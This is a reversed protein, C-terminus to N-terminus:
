DGMLNAARVAAEMVAPPVQHLTVAESVGTAEEPTGAEVVVKWHGRAMYYRAAFLPQRALVGVRWDFETPTFAQAVVLESRKLMQAIAREYSGRDDVKVVGLSFSSDPQKLILPFGIR